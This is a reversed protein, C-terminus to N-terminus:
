AWDPVNGVFIVPYKQCPSRCDAAKCPDDSECTKPGPKCKPAFKVWDYGAPVIAAQHVKKVPKKAVKKTAKKAKAKAKQQTVQPEGTDANVVPATFAVFAFVAFATIAKKFM